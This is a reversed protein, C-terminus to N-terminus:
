TKVQAEAGASSGQPLEMRGFGRGLGGKWEGWACETQQTWSKTVEHVTAWWAGRDIPNGLCSDQLPHGNGEPTKEWGLPQVQMEQMAPQNNIM